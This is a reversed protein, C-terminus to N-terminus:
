QRTKLIEANQNFIEPTMKMSQNQGREVAIALFQPVHTIM